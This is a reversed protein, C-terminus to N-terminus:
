TIKGSCDIITSDNTANYAEDDENRDDGQNAPVQSLLPEMLVQVMFMMM